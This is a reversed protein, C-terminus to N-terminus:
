SPRSIRPPRCSARSDVCALCPRTTQAAALGTFLRTRAVWEWGAYEGPHCALYVGAAEATPIVAALFYRFNERMSEHSTEGDVTRLSDDWPEGPGARFESSLAGGRIPVEYTTRAVRLRPPRCCSRLVLAIMPHSHLLCKEISLAASRSM